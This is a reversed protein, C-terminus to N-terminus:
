VGEPIFKSEKCLTPILLHLEEHLQTSSFLPSTLVTSLQLPGPTVTAAYPAGIAAATAAAAISTTLMTTFHDGVYDYCYNSDM